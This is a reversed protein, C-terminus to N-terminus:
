GRLLGAEGSPLSIVHERISARTGADASEGVAGALKLLTFSLNACLAFIILKLSDAGQSM